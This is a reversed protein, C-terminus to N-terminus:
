PGSTPCLVTTATTGASRLEVRLNSAHDCVVDLAGGPVGAGGLNWTDHAISTGLVNVPTPATAAVTVASAGTSPFSAVITTSRRSSMSVVILAATNLAAVIIPVMWNPKRWFPLPGRRQRNGRM